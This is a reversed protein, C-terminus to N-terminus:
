QLAAVSVNIRDPLCFLYGLMLFPALRRAVKRM